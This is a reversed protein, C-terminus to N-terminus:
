ILGMPNKLSGFPSKAIVTGHECRDHAQLMSALVAGPVVDRWARVACDSCDGRPGTDCVGPPPPPGMSEIFFRSSGPPLTFIEGLTAADSRDTTELALTAANWLHLVDFPSGEILHREVATAPGDALVGWKGNDTKGSIVRRRQQDSM